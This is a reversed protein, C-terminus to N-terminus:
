VDPDVTVVLRGVQPPSEQDVPVVVVVMPFDESTTAAEM